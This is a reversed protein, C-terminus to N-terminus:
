GELDKAKAELSVITAKLECIQEKFTVSINKVEKMSKDTVKVRSGLKHFDLRMLAVEMGVSGIKAELAGRVGQIVMMIDKLSITDEEPMVIAMETGREVKRLAGAAEKPQAFKNLKLHYGSKPGKGGM